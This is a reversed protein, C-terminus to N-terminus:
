VTLYDKSGDFTPMTRKRANRITARRLLIEERQMLKTLQDAAYTYTQGDVSLSVLRTSGGSLTQIAEQVLALEQAVTLVAM